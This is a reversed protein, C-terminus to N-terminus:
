GGREILALAADAILRVRKDFTVRQIERLATVAIDDANPKVTLQLTPPGRLVPIYVATDKAPICSTM